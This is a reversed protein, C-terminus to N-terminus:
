SNYGSENSLMTQTQHPSKKKARKWSIKHRKLTASVTGQTTEIEHYQELYAVLLPQSWNRAKTKLKEFQSPRQALVDEWEAKSLIITTSRGPSTNAVLKGVGGQNYAKIYKRITSEGLDFVKAIEPVHYGQRSLDIVKLRRYWKAEQARKMAAQLEEEQEKETVQAFLM